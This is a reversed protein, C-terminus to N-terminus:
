PVLLLFSLFSLSPSPLCMYSTSQRPHSLFLRELQLPLAQPFPVTRMLKRKEHEGGLVAASSDQTNM